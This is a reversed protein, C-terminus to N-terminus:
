CSRPSGVVDILAAVTDHVRDVLDDERPGALWGALARRFAALGTEASLRATAAPVGRGTLADALDDLKRQERERLEPQRRDGAPAAASGTPRPPVRRLRDSRRGVAALPGTSGPTEGVARGFRARLADSGAFLVERKDVVHRFYTRETM